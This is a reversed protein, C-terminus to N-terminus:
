RLQVTTSPIAACVPTLLYFVKAKLSSPCANFFNTLTLVEKMAQKFTRFDQTDTTSFNPTAERELLHFLIQLKTPQQM